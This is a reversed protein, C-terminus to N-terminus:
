PMVQSIGSNTPGAIHMLMMAEEDPGVSTWTTEGPKKVLVPLNGTPKNQQSLEKQVDGGYKELLGAFEGDKGKFVYCRVAQLGGHDFPPLKASSDVFWTKGDDTTYYNKSPPKGNNGTLEFAIGAVGACIVCAVVITSAKSYQNITERIGM